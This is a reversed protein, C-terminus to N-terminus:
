KERQKPLLVDCLVGFDDEGVNRMSNSTRKRAAETREVHVPRFMAGSTSTRQTSVGFDLPPASPNAGSPPRRSPATSPQAPDYTVEKRYGVSGDSKSDYYHHHHIVITGNPLGGPLPPASSHPGAWCGLVNGAAPVHEGAGQVSSQMSERFSSHDSGQSMPPMSHSAMSPDALRQFVQTTQRRQTTVVPPQMSPLLPPDPPRSLGVRQVGRCGQVLKQRGVLSGTSAMTPSLMTQISGPMTHARSSLHMAAASAPGVRHPVEAWDRTRPEDPHAAGAELFAAKRKTRTRKVLSRPYKEALRSREANAESYTAIKGKMLHARESAPVRATRIILYYGKGCCEAKVGFRNCGGCRISGFPRIHMPPHTRKSVRARSAKGTGTDREIALAVQFVHIATRRACDRAVFAAIYAAASAFRPNAPDQVTANEWCGAGPVSTATDSRASRETHQKQAQRRLFNYASPMRELRERLVATSEDNRSLHRRIKPYQVALLGRMEDATDFKFYVCKMIKSRQEKPVRDTRVIVHYYKRCCEGKVGFKTCGGCRISGFRRSKKVSGEACASSPLMHSASSPKPCSAGASASGDQSPPKPAQGESAHAPPLSAIVPAASLPVCKEERENSVALPHGLASKPAVAVVPPSTRTVSVDSAVSSIGHVHSSEEAFNAISADSGETRSCTMTRGTGCSKSLERETREDPVDSKTHGPCSDSM